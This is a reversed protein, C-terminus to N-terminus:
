EWEYQGCRVFILGMSPAPPPTSSSDGCSAMQLLEGRRGWVGAEDAVGAAYVASSVLVRMQKRIFRDGVVDIRIANVDKDLEVRQASAHFFQCTTSKKRPLGRGFARFDRPPGVLTALQADLLEASITDDAFLPVFYAYHRWKTSFTAHFSRPVKRADCARLSGSPVDVDSYDNIARLIDDNCLPYWSYFSCVSALASVGKDTRGALEVAPPAPLITNLAKEMASKVTQKGPQWATGHFASGFYSLAFAWTQRRQLRGNQRLHVPADDQNQVRSLPQIEGFPDVGPLKSTGLVARQMMRSVPSWPRADWLAKDALCAGRVDMCSDSNSLPRSELRPQQAM